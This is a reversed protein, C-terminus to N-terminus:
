ARVGDRVTAEGLILSPRPIPDDEAVQCEGKGQERHDEHGQSPTAGATSPELVPTHEVLERAERECRRCHEVPVIRIAAVVEEVEREYPDQPQRQRAQDQADTQASVGSTAAQQEVCLAEEREDQKREDHESVEERAVHLGEEEAHAPEPGAQEFEIDGLGVQGSVVLDVLLGIRTAFSQLQDSTPDLRARRAEDVILRSIREATTKRRLWTPRADMTRQAITAAARGVRQEVRGVGEDASRVALVFWRDSEVALEGGKKVLVDAAGSCHRAVAEALGRIEHKNM